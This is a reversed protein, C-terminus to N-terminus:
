MSSAASGASSIGAGILATKNNASSINAAAQANYNTNYVDSAYASEPSFLSPGSQASGQQGQQLLMQGSQAGQSPRGLITLSPDTATAANLRAVNQATLQRQTSLALGRDGLAYAETTADANGWGMGRAAQSARVNQSIEGRQSPSLSSGMRLDELASANLADMLQAQQPDANRIAQVVQPGLERLADLDSRRQANQASDTLAQTRPAVDEWTKLLGSQGDPGLLLRRVNSANLDQYLPSFQAESAYRDPALEVQAALTDRTEQGYDRPPPANVDGM